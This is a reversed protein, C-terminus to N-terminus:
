ALRFLESSMKALQVPCWNLSEGLISGCGFACVDFGLVSDATPHFRDPARFQVLTRM